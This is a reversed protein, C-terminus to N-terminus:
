ANEVGMLIAKLQKITKGTLMSLESLTIDWDQSYLENINETLSGPQNLIEIREQHTM